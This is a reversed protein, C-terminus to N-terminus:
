HLLQTSRDHLDVAKLNMAGWAPNAYTARVQFVIRLLRVTSLATKGAQLTDPGNLCIKQGATDQNVEIRAPLIEFRM